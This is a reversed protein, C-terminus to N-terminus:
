STRISMRSAPLSGSRADAHFQDITKMRSPDKKVIDSIVYLFPVNTAYSAWSM